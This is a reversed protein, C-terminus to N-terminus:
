NESAPMRADACQSLEKKYNAAFEDQAKKADGCIEYDKCIAVRDSHFKQQFQVSVCEAKDKAMAATSGLVLATVLLVKM